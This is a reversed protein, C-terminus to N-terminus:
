RVRRVPQAPVGALRDAAHKRTRQVLEPRAIGRSRVEDDSSSIKEIHTRLGPDNMSAAVDIAGWLFTVDQNRALLRTEIERRFASTTASSLPRQGRGEVLFRMALLADQTTAGDTSSALTALVHPAAADGFDALADAVKPGIGLAGALAPVASSLRLPILVDVLESAFEPYTFSSSSQGRRVARDHARRRANERVLAEIVASRLEQTVAVPQLDRTMAVAVSKERDTGTLLKEAVRQQDVRLRIQPRITDQAVAHAALSVSAVAILMAQNARILRM